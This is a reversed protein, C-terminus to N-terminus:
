ALTNKFITGDKMIIAFSTEPKAVLTIDELPNGNVVLLDALAGQEIVGLKGPYPNRPGSLALLEGNAATAQKLIEANTYWHTLHTLMVNQRRALTASFLLDSGFATKIGHKIALRYAKDTGGLVTQMKERAEGSQPLQDEETLFPQTSLWVGREAMMTATADDMLHAHEICQAGASIARQIAKPMLAHVTVITNWDACVNVAARIEAETYTVSDLPSRPSSVGGSGVIKIHSAGQLLQERVRMMVFDPGDAILAGEAERISNFPAAPATRVEYLPRMDGHGGSSTIMAGCPYIRPGTALGQDIAQKLAFTPGGLDRITTFGRMLTREAEEAAALNAFGTDGQMLVPLPLGAFLAHWHSDILGPMIVRGGCNVVHAGVPTGPTGSGVAKIRTGEVLLFLGERLGSSTGDFLRFNTLLIPRAPPDPAARASSFLGLSAVSATAGAIFGRRSLDASIRQSAAQIISTHCFEHKV